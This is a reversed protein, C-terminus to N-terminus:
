SGHTGGAGSGEPDEEQGDQDEETPVDVSVLKYVDEWEHGCGTCTVDRWAYDDDAQFTGGDLDRGGCYPCILGHQEIYKTWDPAETLSESM